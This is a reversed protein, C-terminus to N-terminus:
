GMSCHILCVKGSTLFSVWIQPTSKLLKNNMKKETDYHDIEINIETQIGTFHDIQICTRQSFQGQNYVRGSSSGDWSVLSDENESLWLSEYGTRVLLPSNSLWAQTHKILINTRRYPWWMSCFWMYMCQMIKYLFSFDKNKTLSEHSVWHM